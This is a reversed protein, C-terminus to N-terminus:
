LFPESYIIKRGTPATWAPSIAIPPPRAAAGLCPKSLCPVVSSVVSARVEMIGSRSVQTGTPALVRWLASDSSLPCTDNPVARVPQRKHTSYRSLPPEPSATAELPMFHGQTPHTCFCEDLHHSAELHGTWPHLSPEPGVRRSPRALDLHYQSSCPQWDKGVARIQICAACNYKALDKFRQASM